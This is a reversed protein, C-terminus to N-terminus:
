KQFLKSAMGLVNDLVSGDRNTDLFQSLMGMLGSDPSDATASSRAGATQRSLAAMAMAAVIPLMKKLVDTGVGTREAAQQAM